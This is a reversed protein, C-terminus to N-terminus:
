VYIPRDEEGERILGDVVDRLDGTDQFMARQRAYSPARVIMEQLRPLEGESGLERFVPRLKGLLKGISVGIPEVAGEGDVITSGATSWRAARWKNERVIRNHLPEAAVSEAVARQLHVILAQIWAAVAITEDLTPVADCVRVEVTGFRPHPRVDWWIERASQIAGARILADQLQEFDRWSQHRYPLGATPLAEFIKTRSSALGTDRGEWFPSSATVSLLHPVWRELHNVVQIATEGDPVGVHVHLGFIVLRKAPWQMRDVLRHYRDDATVRQDTWKSFPHTGASVLAAGHGAVAERVRDIKARLDQRADGVNACVDTNIEITSELLEPKIWSEGRFESLLRPALSVLERRDRDVLQFEMEVGVSPTPSGQFKLTM